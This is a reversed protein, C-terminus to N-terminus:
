KITHTVYDDHVVSGLEKLEAKVDSAKPEGKTYLIVQRDDGSNKHVWMITKHTFGDRKMSAELEQEKALEEAFRLNSEATFCSNCLGSRNTKVTAPNFTKSDCKNCKQFSITSVLDEVDKRTATEFDIKKSLFACHEDPMRVSIQLGYHPYAWSCPSVEVHLPMGEHYHTRRYGRLEM